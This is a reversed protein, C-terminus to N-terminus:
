RFDRSAVQTLVCDPGAYIRSIDHRLDTTIKESDTYCIEPVVRAYDRFIGTSRLLGEEAYASYKYIARGPAVYSCYENGARRDVVLVQESSEVAFDMARQEAVTYTFTPAVKYFPTNPNIPYTNLSLWGWIGAGVAILVARRVPAVNSGSLSVAGFGVLPAALVVMFGLWRPTILATIGLFPLAFILMAVLVCSGLLALHRASQRYHRIWLLGAYTLMAALFLFALRNWLVPAATFASAALHMEHTLAIYLQNAMARFFNGRPAFAFIWRSLLLCTIAVAFLLQNRYRSVRERKTIFALLSALLGYANLVVVTVFASITHTWVLAVGPLGAAIRSSNTKGPYVFQPMLVAFLTIGMVTPITFAGWEVLFQDFCVYLAAVLGATEGVLRRTLVFVPLPLISSPITFALFMGLRTSTGGVVQTMLALLHAAPWSYYDHPGHPGTKIVHGAQRIDDICGAHAFTDTGYMSPSFGFLVARVLLSVVCIAALLLYVSQRDSVIMARCALLGIVLSTIAFYASGPSSAQHASLVAVSLLSIALAYFYRQGSDRAAIPPLPRERRARALFALALAAGLAVAVGIDRTGAANFAFGAVALGAGSALVVIALVVFMVRVAHTKEDIRAPM